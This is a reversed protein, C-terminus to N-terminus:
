GSTDYESGNELGTEAARTGPLPVPQDLSAYILTVAPAIQRLEELHAAALRDILRRGSRSLRIRVVRRDRRDRCRRVLGAGEARDVLGVTTHHRLDLYQSIERISPGSRPEHARVALLLSHQQPTLGARHVQDASWHLFRTLATRFALLTRYDAESLSASSVM